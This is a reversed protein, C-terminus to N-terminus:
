ELNAYGQIVRVGAVPPHHTVWLHGGLIRILSKLVDGHEVWRENL